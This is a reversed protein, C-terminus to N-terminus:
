PTSRKRNVMDAVMLPEPPSDEGPGAGDQAIFQQHVLQTSLVALVRMNDTNGMRAGGTRACKAFLGAVQAPDFVGVAEIAAASTVETLWEPPSGSFFSAADPARYPQKPRHLIEEPVLDAFARKLLHKEDLGCLKHRAPLGNALEVVDRDLFPFRGEVSNAMLMRDGQSALIYGPLLTTMELWQARALPDWSESGAPMLETVDQAESRDVADRTGPALLAKVASTSDWRPRHSIAPDAPDLNQGFFSRAFAPARGPSRAMWPYLLEAARDRKRSEPNRSWFLRVRAERFIDYGALVEDAGEGTVVVKYGNDRVLRSLLFLPAPASRLIPTETHWVVQPFVEAVDAHSVVIDQHQAGLEAAMKQQYDGEDFEGDDFRLSFTHLPADTYRAIVAATVSSDIGGSLYAGVPVDSRLFRLRTAEIIRERLAEANVASDQSPEQGQEPFAISWYPSKRFGDRDLVAVYGPELQEVGRFITRPAVTSWYTFTQDLGAPDLERPVTPDAFLAKVESAFVLRRGNRAYFLPRVGLRDRSLVLRQERRDWLALAWQGNFRSFCSEGWEEWAHVIVETDSATRFTHGRRRLEEGLEVYNFIEGNFTVWVNGDENCLPQTGGATDIIALRTHGLAAREDRFYGSGDPGRHRLRGMMRTVLGVEPPPGDTVVGCIGCM